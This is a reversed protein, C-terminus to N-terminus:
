CGDLWTGHLGNFAARHTELDLASADKDIPNIWTQSYRGGLKTLPEGENGHLRDINDWTTVGLVM